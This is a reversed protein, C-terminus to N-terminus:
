SEVTLLLVFNGCKKDFAQPFSHSQSLSISALWLLLNSSGSEHYSNLMRHSRHCLISQLPELHWSPLGMRVRQRILTAVQKKTVMRRMLVNSEERLNQQESVFFRPRNELQKRSNKMESVNSEFTIKSNNVLGEHRATFRHRPEVITIRNLIRRIRKIGSNGLGTNGIGIRFQKM